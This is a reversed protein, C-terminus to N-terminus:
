SKAQLDIIKSVQLQQQKYWKTTELKPFVEVMVDLPKTDLNVSTDPLNWKLEALVYSFIQNIMMYGSEIEQKDNSSEVSLISKVLQKRTDRSYHSKLTAIIEESM